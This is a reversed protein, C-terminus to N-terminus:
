GKLLFSKTSFCQCLIFNASLINKYKSIYFHIYHGSVARFFCFPCRLDKRMEINLEPNSKEDIYKYYYFVKSPQSCNEVSPSISKVSAYTANRSPTSSSSPLRQPHGSDSVLAKFYMKRQSDYRNKDNEHQQFWFEVDSPSLLDWM